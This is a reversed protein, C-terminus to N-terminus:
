HLAAPACCNPLSRVEASREASPSLRGGDMSVIQKRTQPVLYRAAGTVQPSRPM